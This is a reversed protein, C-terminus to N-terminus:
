IAYWIIVYIQATYKTLHTHTHKRTHTRTHMHTHSLTHIINMQNYKPNYQQIQGSFLLNYMISLLM